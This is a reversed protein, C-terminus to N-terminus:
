FNFPGSLWFDDSFDLMSLDSGAGDNWGMMAGADGEAAGQPAGPIAWSPATARLIEAAASFVSEEGTEEKYMENAREAMEALQELCQVIDITRTIITPDWGPIGKFTALKHLIKLCYPFILM